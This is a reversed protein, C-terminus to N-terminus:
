NIILNVLCKVTILIKKYFNDLFIKLFEMHIFLFFFSDIKKRLKNSFIIISITFNRRIKIGSM